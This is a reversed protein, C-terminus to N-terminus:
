KILACDAYHRLHTIQAKEVSSKLVKISLNEAKSDSFPLTEPIYFGRFAPARSVPEYAPNFGINFGVQQKLFTSSISSLNSM